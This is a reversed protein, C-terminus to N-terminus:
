ENSKEGLIKNDMPNRILLVTLKDNYYFDLIQAVHFNNRKLIDQIPNLSLYPSTKSINIEIRDHYEDSEGLRVSVGNKRNTIKDSIMKKVRKSSIM